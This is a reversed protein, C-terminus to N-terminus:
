TFAPVCDDDLRLHLDHLLAYADEQKRGGLHLSPIIKTVPDIALWLWQVGSRVKAHLEDLQVFTLVLGQFYRNHLLISHAGMRELWRSITSEAHGTYRVMVSVDVGEAMLWLVMEIRDSATKLYYLPTNRRCSFDRRCWQCRFHQINDEIGRKGNGVLAHVQDDTIGFYDCQPNLCAYGATCIEKKRGRTSKRRAYPEVKREVPRSELSLGQCCHPCDKPSRPKWRRPLRAKASRWRRRLRPFYLRWSVRLLLVAFLILLLQDFELLQDSM